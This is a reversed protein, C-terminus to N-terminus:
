RIQLEPHARVYTAVLDAIAQHGFRNPHGDLTIKYPQNGSLFQAELAPLADLYHIGNQDLFTKTTNWLQEEKEILIQYEPKPNKVLKRFVIEKSPILIVVFGIDKTSAFEQMQRIADLSIRLGDAIRPDDLNVGAFRYKTTFVTRFTGSSFAQFEDPHAKVKKMASEWLDEDSNGELLARRALQYIKSNAAFFDAHAPEKELIM